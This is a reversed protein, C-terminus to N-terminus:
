MYVHRGTLCVSLCGAPGAWPFCRHLQLQCAVYYSNQQGDAAAVDGGQGPVGTVRGEMSRSCSM